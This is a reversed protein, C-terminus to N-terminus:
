HLSSREAGQLLRQLERATGALEVIARTYDNIDFPRSPEAPPPANPDPAFRGVLSDTSKVLQDPTQATLTGAELAGKLDATLARVQENQMELGALFQSIAAERERAVAARQAPAHAWEPAASGLPVEDRDHLLPRDV